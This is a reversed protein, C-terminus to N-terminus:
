LGGGGTPPPQKAANTFCGRRAHVPPKRSVLRSFGAMGQCVRLYRFLPSQVSCPHSSHPLHSCFPATIPLSSITACVLDQAEEQTQNAKGLWYRTVIWLFQKPSVGPCPIMYGRKVLLGGSSLFGQKWETRTGLITRFPHPLHQKM